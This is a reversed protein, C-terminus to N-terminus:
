CRGEPTLGVGAASTLGDPVSCARCLIRRRKLRVANSRAGFGPASGTSRVAPVVEIEDDADDM